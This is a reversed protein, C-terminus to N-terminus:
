NTANAKAEEILKNFVNGRAQTKDAQRAQTNTVQRNTAWETRLKEADALLLGVTHMKQVYFSNNHYVYFAAVMPAEEFGIRKIFSSIQGNVTANRVPKAKYRREYADSYAEWTESSPSLDKNKNKPISSIKQVPHPSIKVGDPFSEITKDKLEEPEQNITEPKYNKTRLEYNMTPQVTTSRDNFTHENKNTDQQNNTSENKLSRKAASAKGAESAKKSKDKYQEIEDFARSNIWGDETLTFFESLVQEVDTAYDRLMLLRCIANLDTTIPKEHMYQWDLLRRYCIDEIPTLHKTHSQYDSINFQYYHM